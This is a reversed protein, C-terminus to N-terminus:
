AAEEIGEEAIFKKLIDPIVEQGKNEGLSNIRTKISDKVKKDNLFSIDMELKEIFSAINVFSNGFSLRSLIEEKITEEIFNQPINFKKQLSIAGSVLSDTFRMKIESKVADTMFENDINFAKQIKIAKDTDDVSLVAQIGDEVGKKAEKTDLFSEDINLDKLAEYSGAIDGQSLKLVVREKGLEIFQENNLLDLQYTKAKFLTDKHNRKEFNNFIDQKAIEKLTEESIGNEKATAIAREDFGNDMKKIISEEIGKDIGFKGMEKEISEETNNFDGQEFM